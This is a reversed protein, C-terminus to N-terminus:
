DYMKVYPIGHEELKKILSNPHSTNGIYVMKINSASHAEKGHLQYEIYGCDEACDKVLSNGKKHLVDGRIMRGMTRDDTPVAKPDTLRTVGCYFRDDLSDGLLFTTCDKVKDKDLVVTCDGYWYGPGSRYFAQDGCLDPDLAKLDKMSQWPGLKPMLMGYVPRDSDEASYPTGFMDNECSRRGGFTLAGGSTGTEFQNKFRGEDLVKMLNDGNIRMGLDSNEALDRMMSGLMKEAEERSVGYETMIMDLERSMTEVKRPDNQWCSDVNEIHKLHPPLEAPESPPPPTEVPKPTPKPEKAKWWEKYTMNQIPIGDINDYRQYEEPYDKLDGVLTCRCNFVEHAPGRPDGPFRCGNSFKTPHWRDGVAIQEGDMERHSDRTHGDLTAMWEQVLELGMKKAGQLRQMRGMNQAGTMATQAHTKALNKNQNCTVSAIRKTIQDLSEGQIIGQTVCNNVKQKNWIYEKPEDIKWKPLIDPDNAILNTVTTSDYLGFGFNIGATHELSYAVWNAGEAFADITGGNVIATAQANANHLIGCIQDRKSNWQQAQFAQGALWSQYDDKTIKGDKLEQLKISNKAMLKDNFSKMKAEIDAQAQSYVQDIRKEIKATKKDVNSVGKDEAM